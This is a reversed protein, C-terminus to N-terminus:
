SMDSRITAKFSLDRAPKMAVPLTAAASKPQGDRRPKSNPEDASQVVSFAFCLVLLATFQTKM